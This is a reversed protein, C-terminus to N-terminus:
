GEEWYLWSVSKSKYNKWPLFTAKILGTILIQLTENILFVCQKNDPFEVRMTVTEYIQISQIRVHLLKKRVSSTPRIDCSTKEEDLYYM